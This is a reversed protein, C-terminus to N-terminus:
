LEVQGLKALTKLVDPNEGAVNRQEEPDDPLYYLQGTSEFTAKWPGQRIAIREANKPDRWRFVRNVSSNDEGDSVWSILSTGSNRPIRASQIAEALTPLLDLLACPRDTRQALREQSDYIMLPVQLAAETLTASTSEDDSANPELPLGALALVFPRGNDHMELAHLWRGLMVDLEDVVRRREDPRLEDITLHLQIFTPRASSSHGPVLFHRAQEVLLQSATLDDSPDDNRNAIVKASAGNVVVETPYRNGPAMHLSVQHDFTQRESAQLWNSGELLITRYGSKWMMEALRNQRTEGGNHGEGTLLMHRAVETSPGAYCVDFVTAQEAIGELLPTRGAESYFGLDAKTMGELLVLLVTPSRRGPPRIQRNANRLAGRIESKISSLRQDAEELRERLGTESDQFVEDHSQIMGDLSRTLDNKLVSSAQNDDSSPVDARFSPIPPAIAEATDDAAVNGAPNPADMSPSIRPLALALGIVFLALLIVTRGIWHM